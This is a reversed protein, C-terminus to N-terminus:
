DDSQSRRVRCIPYTNFASSSTCIKEGEYAVLGGAVLGAAGYALSHDKKPPEQPYGYSQPPQPQGYGYGGGGYPQQPPPPPQAYGGEGPRNWTREGTQENLYFYRQDREDWRAVWPYPLNQDPADGPPGYGGGYGPAPGSSSGPTPAPIQQQQQHSGVDLKQEVYKEALQGLFEM